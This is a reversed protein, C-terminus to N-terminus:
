RRATGGQKAESVQRVNIKIVVESRYRRAQNTHERGIPHSFNDFLLRQPPQKRIMQHKDIVAEIVVDHRFARWGRVLHNALLEHQQHLFIVAVSAAHRRFPIDPIFGM